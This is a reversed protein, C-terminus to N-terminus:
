SLSDAYCLRYDGSFLIEISSDDLASQGTSLDIPITKVALHHTLDWDVVAQMIIGQGLGSIYSYSYTFRVLLYLLCSLHM